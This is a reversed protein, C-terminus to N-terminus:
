VSRAGGSARLAESALARAHTRVDEPWHAAEEDFRDADGAYLARLAEEFGRANGVMASMFRYAADQSRRVQDRGENDRRAEDVLRRLTASAGGRQTGLWAWHRPLLTVEKSVVGLKPRGRGRSARGPEADPRLYPTMPAIRARVDEVTGSLDFDIRRGTADDFVLIPDDHGADMAAKAAEAVVELAGSAIRRAGLFATATLSDESM